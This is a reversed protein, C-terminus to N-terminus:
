YSIQRHTWPCKIELLGSEHCGCSIIGDPSAGFIPNECSVFLGTEVVILKKHHKANLKIYEQHVVPENTKGRKMAKSKFNNKQGCIKSLITKVKGPNKIEYTESVTLVVEYFIPAPIRGQRYKYRDNCNSPKKTQECIYAAQSKDLKLFSIFDHDYEEWNSNFHKYEDVLDYISKPAETHETSTVEICASVDNIDPNPRVNHKENVACHWM